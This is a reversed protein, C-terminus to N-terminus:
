PTLGMRRIVDRFRSNSRLPDFLRERPAFVMWPLREDYGQTLSMVARDWEGLRAYRRAMWFASCHRTFSERWVTAPRRLEEEALALESRWFELWGSRAYVRELRARIPAVRESVLVRDLYELYEAVAADRAGSYEHAAALLMWASQYNRDLELTRRLQEIAADYRGLRILLYGFAVNHDMWFPNLRLAQRMAALADENHDVVGLFEAYFMFAAASGPDEKMARRLDREAGVWDYDFRMKVFASAVLGIGIPEDSQLARAVATRADAIDTTTQHTRIAFCACYALSSYPPAFGPDVAIAKLFYQKAEICGGDQWRTMLYSGRLYAEYAERKVSRTRTLRTQEPPTLAISMERATALAIDSYLALADAAEREYTATWLRRDTQVHVLAVTVRVLSDSRVLSGELLADVGGLERAIDGASRASNKYRLTSTSSVVTLAGIQSLTSSIAETMGDALWDQSPNGTLNRLPLVAISSILPRRTERHLVGVTLLAVLGVVALAGAPVLMAWRAGRRAAKVIAQNDRNLPAIFRYGRRPLTEIFRPTEASDGLADRLRKVAATVGHEFDVFTEAPWLQQRLEERTVVEGRRELLLVLLRFPQDQLPIRAGAKRLEGSQLNAEFPGFRVVPPLLNGSDTM